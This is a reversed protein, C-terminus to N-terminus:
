APSDPMKSTKPYFMVQATARILKDQLGLIKQGSPREIGWGTAQLALENLAQNVSNQKEDSQDLLLQTSHILFTVRDMDFDRRSQPDVAALIESVSLRLREQWEQTQKLLSGRELQRHLRENEQRVTWRTSLLGIVAVALMGFVTIVSQYLHEM